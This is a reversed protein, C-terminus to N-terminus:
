FPLIGNDEESYMKNSTFWKFDGYEEIADIADDAMSKFYSIDIDDEKNLEQVLEAELWRYGKTGGVAFHKGDKRRYLIGGGKGPKIPVFAGTKGIFQYSHNKEIVEELEELRTNLMEKDTATVDDGELKKRIKKAEKEESSVDDLDENMDLYLASTTNKTQCYDEFEIPENTFLTKYVYPESFQVGVSEWGDYEEGDKEKYKAVYVAKNVLCFKDYTAEHEFDYNYEKGFDFVFDIIYQDADAIKISDTKIHVVNYGEEMVAKQLDVMFLAGRKAVINDANRPDRFPNPYNASTLGYVINIVIKLAYSLSKATKEDKLYKKLDGGFMGRAKDFNNHKIALRADLLGKYNQTYKGFVNMNIASNPHMSAVDLLVVDGYMGPDAYVYGGEGTTVGRYTSDGAEFKYGPFEKSLDTYVFEDQPNREKGFIIRATHRQTRDNVSLGSLEALIQRAVFDEHRANFVAETAIVDNLCYDAVETWDEEDVPDDWPLYLEQHHIGLEIEFKKLSQKKSSFDYVDTYSLSYAERFLATRENNIIKKSLKYLQNNNYGLYRAYLIHNDYRRCNFGVLKNNLLEGIEQPSPNIMKVGDDVGEYKWVVIFLNPFVEVDFFMLREDEYDQVPDSPKESKFKMKGVLKVCYPAQHTSNNAFALVQGAMDSVDYHLDTEYADELIKNIFDISPKTAPHIEKNLNKKILRRLGQESQVSDFNIVKKEGKMPLGSSITAIKTHNCKSLKRRLSSKGNFVKIEIDEAYERKLREVDSKYIYHLHIGGGSRSIEAYTAPWKSAEELNRELSKEGTEDKLDFDIVIHNKPLRVYHLNTTNIDELTKDVSDWYTKPTGDKKAYQAPYDKAHRDFISTEQDLVLSFPEEIEEEDMTYSFKEKLFGRYYSRIQKGNVRDRRKFSEFYEKLEDRFKHRALTYTINAEECYEKYMKYARKLAVGDEDRFTYYNAEIFNFFVDTQYIMDLPKYSNYYNKGMNQYTELCHNAIAGLEFDIKSLLSYYHNAPITEGTPKVDILRRIIGSKADTIKVPKNTAMFLFANISSMYSPKYKENMTMQEHAIISNLKTNDEIRSLDGDHQIAVLPNSKFVETSFQNRSGALAKAEFTTYYGEFLKQIIELVTSKGTGAQGYLVIFKQIDKSDGAFISGIAWELKAKEEPDYLTDMLEHWSECPEESMSYPVRKSAYDKKSTETNQFTIEMDLDRANNSLNSVYSQFEAWLRSSYDGMTKARVRGEKEEAIENRKKIIEQDVLTQVDYEDTSWLQKDKDYIAFFAKGRVMLDESRCVKFDPYVEIVGNRKKKQKINFFDM